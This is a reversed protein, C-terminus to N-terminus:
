IPNVNIPTVDISHVIHPSNKKVFRRRTEKMYYNKKIVTIHVITCLNPLQIQSTM